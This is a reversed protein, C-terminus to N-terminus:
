HADSDKKRKEREREGEQGGGKERAWLAESWYSMLSCFMILLGRGCYRKMADPPLM